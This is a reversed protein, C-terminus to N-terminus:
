RRASSERTKVSHRSGGSVDGEFSFWDGLRVKVRATMPGGPGSM